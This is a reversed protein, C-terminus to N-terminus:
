FCRGSASKGGNDSYDKGFLTLQSGADHTTGGYIDFFTDNTSKSIHSATRLVGTLTGGSLNLKAALQNNNETEHVSLSKNSSEITKNVVSTLSKGM